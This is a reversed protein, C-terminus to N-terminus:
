VKLSRDSALPSWNEFGVLKESLKWLKKAVEPDLSESSPETKVCDRFFIIKHVDLM